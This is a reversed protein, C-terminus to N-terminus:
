DEPIMTESPVNRLRGYKTDAGCIEVAEAFSYHGAEERNPTYGRRASKWWAGHENSWILWCKDQPRERIPTEDVPEDPECNADLLERGILEGPGGPDQVFGEVASEWAQEQNVGHAALIVEWEYRYEAM